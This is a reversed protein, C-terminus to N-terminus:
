SMKPWNRSTFNVNKKRSQFEIDSRFGQSNTRVVYGGNENPIRANINEVYTHSIDPDYKITMRHTSQILLLQANTQM